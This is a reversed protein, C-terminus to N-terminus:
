SLEAKDNTPAVLLQTTTVDGDAKNKDAYIKTKTNPRSKNKNSTTIALRYKTM